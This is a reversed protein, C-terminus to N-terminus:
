FSSSTAMPPTPSDQFHGLAVRHKSPTAPAAKDCGTTAEAEGSRKTKKHAYAHQTYRLRPSGWVGKRQQARGRRQAKFDGARPRATTRTRAQKETFHSVASVCISVL